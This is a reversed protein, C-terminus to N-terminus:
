IIVILKKEKKDIEIKINLEKEIEKVKEFDNKRIAFLLSDFVDFNQEIFKIAKLLEEEEKKYEEIRERIKELTKRRKVEEKDEKEEKQSYYLSCAKSLSEVKEPNELLNEVVAYDIIKNKEKQIVFSPYALIKSVEKEIREADVDKTLTKEDIKLLSLIYDKYRKGLMFSLSAGVPKEPFNKKYFSFSFPQTKAEYPSSVKRLSHIVNNKKDTLIINGKSFLEIFLLFDNFKIVVIRDGNLLSVEEIYKNDLDKRLKEIFSHKETTIKADDVWIAKGIKTILSAKSTKIKFKDGEIYAKRFFSKEVLKLEDLMINLEIKDMARLKM